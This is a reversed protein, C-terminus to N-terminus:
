VFVTERKLLAQVAEPSIIGRENPMVHSITGGMREVEGFCDLVSAHEIASVIWDTGTLSRRRMELARAFGLIAINNAETLGSTFILERSKVELLKAIRARADDLVALAEVAEKHIAGANGDRSEAARMARPADEHVPPASADGLCTRKPRFLRMPANHQAGIPQARGKQKKM